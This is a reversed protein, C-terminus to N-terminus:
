SLIVQLVSLCKIEKFGATHYQLFALYAQMLKRRFANSINIELANKIKETKLFTDLVQSEAANLDTLGDPSKSFNGTILSFYPQTNRDTEANVFYGAIKGSQILFFLPANSVTADPQQYLYNSFSQYFDLLENQEHGEQVLHGLVEVCFMRICNKLVTEETTHENRLPSFEKLYQLQRQPHNEFSINLLAGPFLLNAHQNSKKPTRVGKVIVSFLGLDEALVQCILSTDGYKVTKLILAPTNINM